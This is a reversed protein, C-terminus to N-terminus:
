LSAVIGRPQAIDAVRRRAPTLATKISTGLSVRVVLASTLVPAAVSLALAAASGTLNPWLYWLAAAVPVPALLAMGWAPKGTPLARVKLKFLLVDLVLMTTALVSAIPTALAVMLLWTLWNNDLVPRPNAIFLYATVAVWSSAIAGVYTPGIWSALRSIKM